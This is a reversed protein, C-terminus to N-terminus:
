RASRLRELSPARDLVKTATLLLETRTHVGFIRFIAALHSKVTNDSLSLERCILKNSLGRMVCCFVDWQRKSLISPSSSLEEQRREFKMNDPIYIEENLVRLLASLLESPSSRKPIFGMAGANLSATVAQINDDASVVVIAIEPVLSKIQALHQLGNEKSLYIDLLCLRLDPHARAIELAKSIEEAEFIETDPRMSLILLRLGARFLSHDDVILVKM